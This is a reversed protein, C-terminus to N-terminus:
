LNICSFFREPVRVSIEILRYTMQPSIVDKFYHTNWDMFM